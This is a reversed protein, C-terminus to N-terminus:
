RLTAEVISGQQLLVDAKRGNALAESLVALTNTVGDPSRPAIRIWGTGDLIAWAMQSQHKAHTRVVTRNNRWGDAAWPILQRLDPRNGLSRAIAVRM